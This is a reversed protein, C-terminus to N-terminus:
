GNRRAGLRQFPEAKVTAQGGPQLGTNILSCFTLHESDGPFFTLGRYPCLVTLLMVALGSNFNVKSNRSPCPLLKGDIGNRPPLIETKM